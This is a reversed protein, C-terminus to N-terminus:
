RQPEEEHPRVPGAQWDYGPTGLVARAREFSDDGMVSRLEGALRDVVPGDGTFAEPAETCWWAMTAGGPGWDDRRWARVTVEIAGDDGTHEDVRIPVRSCTQPKWDIPDEGEALAALHLACGPGGPFGPRNLFVCAGDVVRTVWRPGAVEVPGGCRRALPGHQFVEDPITAALATVMMAEDRDRLVVGVSCCGDMLEPRREDHIGQCGDGWLCRWTSTLFGADLRWVTRGDPDDVRVFRPQPGAIGGTGGADATGGADRTDPEPM